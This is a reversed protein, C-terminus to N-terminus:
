KEWGKARYNMLALALVVAGGALSGGMVMLGLADNWVSLAYGVVPGVGILLM